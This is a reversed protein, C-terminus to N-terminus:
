EAACGFDFLTGQSEVGDLTKCANEWYSGKLEVGVFKRKKKLAVYGESGIGMFPSLVIDGPNSYLQVCREILDLQLPCLHKEDANERAASVNLVNSQRIDMWVPSAWQRWTEVPLESEAQPIFEENDGPKRFKWVYDPTGTSSIASDKRLQKQLLRVTKTRTAETLPCKWVTTRHDVIFGFKEHMDAIKDSFRYLGIKGDKWKRMPWDSCHVLASRGPKLVRFLEKAFFAYHDMFEDLNASNGMDAASDSYIFLDGFPPSFVSMGICNDPLQTLVDVCDGNYATWEKGSRQNLCKVM